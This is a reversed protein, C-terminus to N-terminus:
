KGGPCSITFEKKAVAALFAAIKLTGLKIVCNNGAPHQRLPFCARAAITRGVVAGEQRQEDWSRQSEDRSL